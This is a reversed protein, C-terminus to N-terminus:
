AGKGTRDDYLKPYRRRDAPLLALCLAVSVTLCLLVFRWSAASSGTSDYLRGTVLLQLSYAASTLVSYLANIRGRHAAPVRDSLHPGNAVTTFVEGLTFLVMTVYYLPVLNFPLLFLAYGAMLLLVGILTKVTTTLKRFARTIVPTALVCIICNVSSLSGYLVSGTDGHRATLDIPMLYSYQMYAGSYITMVALYLMLAGSGRLVRLLSDEAHGHQYVAEEATETVPTIDRVLLLILVTSCLISFSSILFSLWLYDRFLMGAITPAAVYGINMGLYQLSYARERDRTPTIDAIIGSYAPHELTQASSAAVILVLSLVSLPLLACVAYLVVSIVDCVIIITKKNMCDALVGGMLNVPLAVLGALIMLLSAQSATYGLKATLILTLMPWVMSGLNTVLRGFFLIYNERKLGRYQAFLRM